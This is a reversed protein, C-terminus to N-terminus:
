PSGPSSRSTRRGSSSRASRVARSTRPTSTSTTRRRPRSSTARRDEAVDGERVREVLRVRETDDAARVRSRERRRQGQPHARGDRGRHQLRQALLLGPGRGPPAPLDGNGERGRRGPRAARRRRAHERHDLHHGQRVVDPQADGEPVGAPAPIIDAQNATYAKLQKSGVAFVRQYKSAVKHCVATKAATKEHSAQAVGFSGLVLVPVALLLLKRM